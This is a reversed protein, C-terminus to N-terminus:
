RGPDPDDPSGQGAHDLAEEMNERKLRQKRERVGLWKDAEDVGADVEVRKAEAAARADAVVKERNYGDWKVKIGIEHGAAEMERAMREAAEKAEIEHRFVQKLLDAERGRRLGALGREHEMQAIHEGLDAETKGFEQM